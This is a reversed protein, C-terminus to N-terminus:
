QLHSKIDKKKYEIPIFFEKTIVKDPASYDNISMSFYTKGDKQNEISVAFGKYGYGIIKNTQTDYIPASEKNKSIVCANSKQKDKDSSTKNDSSSCGLFVFSFLVIFLILLIRKM